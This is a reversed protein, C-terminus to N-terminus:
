DALATLLSEILDVIAANKHPDLADPHPDAFRGADNDYYRGSATAFEDSTAARALIDAGIGIDNGSTGYAEKVMKTGLFSAPNVAVVVPGM